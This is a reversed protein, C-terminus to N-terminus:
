HHSSSTTAAIPERVSTVTLPAARGQRASRLHFDQWDAMISGRGVMRQRAFAVAVSFSRASGREGFKLGPWSKWSKVFHYFLKVTLSNHLYIRMIVIVYDLNPRMAIPLSTAVNCRWAQNFVTIQPDIGCSSTHWMNPEYEFISHLTVAM